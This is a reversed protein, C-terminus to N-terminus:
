LQRPHVPRRAGRPDQRAVVTSGKRRDELILIVAFEDGGLRGVTDRVRVSELLRNGVQTLLVDGMAHGHTDNVTKFHDLDIYLVVVGWNKKKAQAITKGLTEYFLTRNPLGTLPDHHAMQYLRLHAEERETVDRIVGSRSRTM